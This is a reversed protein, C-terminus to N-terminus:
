ACPHESPDHKDISRALDALVRTAPERAKPVEVSVAFKRGVATFLRGDATTEAVWGVGAVTDCPAAPSGEAPEDVGCRLVIPPDGWGAAIHDAVAVSKQGAITRPLDAYLAKCDVGTRPQTPYTDVDLTSSCAALLLILAPVKTTM